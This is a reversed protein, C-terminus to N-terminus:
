SARQKLDNIQFKTFVLKYIYIIQNKKLCLSFFSLISLLLKAGKKFIPCISLLGQM